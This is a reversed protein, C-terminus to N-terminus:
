INASRRAPPADVGAQQLAREPDQAYEARLRPNSYSVQYFGFVSLGVAVAIM